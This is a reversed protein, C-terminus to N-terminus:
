SFLWDRGLRLLAMTTATAFVAVIAAAYVTGARPHRGPRKAATMAVAGSIVATLGAAIHCRLAVDFLAGELAAAM